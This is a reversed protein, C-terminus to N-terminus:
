GSVKSSIVQSQSDNRVEILVAPEEFIQPELEIFVRQKVIPEKIKAKYSKESPFNILQDALDSQASKKQTNFVASQAHNANIRNASLMEFM